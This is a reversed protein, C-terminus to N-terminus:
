TLLTWVNWDIQMVVHAAYVWKLCKFQRVSYIGDLYM